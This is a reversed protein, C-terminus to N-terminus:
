SVTISFAEEEAGTAEAGFTLDVAPGQSRLAVEQIVTQDARQAETVVGVAGADGRGASDGVDVAVDNRGSQGVGVEIGVAIRTDLVVVQDHVAPAAPIRQRAIGPRESSGEM